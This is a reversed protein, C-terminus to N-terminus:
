PQLLLVDAMSTCVKDARAVVTNRTVIETYAYFLDAAGPAKALSDSYGDGIMIVPHVVAPTTSVIARIVDAKGGTHSTPIRQDIGTIHGADDYLFVNGFVHSDPIGLARTVPFMLERFAGSVVYIQVAHTAFFAANQAVSHSMHALITPTVAEVDARTLSLLAFRQKFSEELLLEGAMGADTIRRVEALVEAGDARDRVAYSALIELAEDDILTSDFDFVLTAPLM